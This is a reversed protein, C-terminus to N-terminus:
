ETGPGATSPTPAGPQVHTLVISEHAKNDLKGYFSRLDPYDTVAYIVKGITVNRYSSISNESQKVSTDFIAVKQLAGKEPPPASEVALTAPFKLRVADQVYSAYHLYVANERKAETFMPRANVEFVDAPLILRKGTTSGIAGKVAYTVLLPKDSDALNKVDTVRVEMGGPLTQEMESRLETNTATDDGRLARQRWYLAPDGTYSMSVTGTASGHDDLTLDAIRNVHASTYPEGPTPAIDVGADSQRLGATLTHRWALHRYACYRQGPDFFVDKGDVNVIAIYDDIQSLSLYGPLFIREGRDAVGMLYAKMGAARAMAVFLQALEDGSGRKRALIDDTSSVAKLGAAKEEAASRSRTFDTNELAMVADYLKKLKAEPPDGPAGLGSVAARVGPGPGIFKDRAKSWRKGASKWYEAATHYSTYYFLVRDSISHLPPMYSEDPIPGVNEVTLELQVQGEVTKGGNAHTQLVTQKVKAGPPLIPTWAISSSVQEGNDGTSTVPEMTPFWLFHAKRTYLNSQVFWDPSQVYADDFHIKYRYEVISGIEVSPLTFVKAKYSSQTGREILKEYPKGTFPIITGDPHITRGALSDINSGERTSFPLEVNAFDKGRENLVKLRVYFSHMHLGDDTTEERFLYLGPAGPAEPLATMSLEASTPAVWQQAHVAPALSLLCLAFSARLPNIM